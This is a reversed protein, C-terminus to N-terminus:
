IWECESDVLKARLVVSSSKGVCCSEDVLDVVDRFGAVEVTNSCPNCLVDLSVVEPLRDSELEFSGTLSPSSPVSQVVQPNQIESPVLDCWIAGSRVVVDM